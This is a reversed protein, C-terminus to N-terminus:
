SERGKHLAARDRLAQLAQPDIGHDDPAAYEVTLVILAVVFLVLAVIM